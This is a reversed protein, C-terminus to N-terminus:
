VDEGKRMISGSHKPCKVWDEAVACGRKDIGCTCIIKGNMTSITAKLTKNEKKLNEIERRLSEIVEQVSSSM